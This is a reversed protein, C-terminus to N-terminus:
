YFLTTLISSGYFILWILVAGVFFILYSLRVLSATNTKTAIYRLFFGIALCVTIASWIYQKSLLSVRTVVQRQAKTIEDKARQEAEEPGMDQTSEQMSKLTEEGSELAENYISTPSCGTLFLMCLTILIILKKALMRKHRSM